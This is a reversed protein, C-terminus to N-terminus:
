PQKRSALQFASSSSFNTSIPVGTYTSGQVTTDFAGTYVRGNSKLQVWIRYEGPRPFEYPFSVATVTNTPHKHVTNTEGLFFKHSAMSFTGVPHVHAFVSGTKHRVVAHGFMGMYPELPLAAGETSEVRFTLNSEWRMVLNDPLRSQRGAFAGERAIHWSDDIDPAVAFNTLNATPAVSSCIADPRGAIKWLATYGESLAPIEVTATLTEFFGNEYTVDGYLQYKGEPLPPIAAEFKTSSQQVPHLHAFADSNPHRVLFLHMLKGHDSILPAARRKSNFQVALQLVPQNKRFEVTAAVPTPKYLRNTRYERDEKDWWLKGVTLLTALVVAGGAMSFGKRWRLRSTLVTGPELISDCFAAGFLWVASVFLLSGLGLLMNRFWPKMPNRTMAVSNVPVVVTGEGKTGRVNVDVSYAGSEMFWLTATFLNADGRVREAIDPPPAGKRGARFYVPLVSVREAAGDLIRVNIEALGPVVGPPRVMVRIPYPGANGEFYVDPSGIHASAAGAFIWFLLPLAFRMAAGQADV